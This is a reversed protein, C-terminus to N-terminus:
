DLKRNLFSCLVGVGVEGDLAFQNTACGSYSKYLALGSKRKRLTSRFPNFLCLIFVFFFSEFM